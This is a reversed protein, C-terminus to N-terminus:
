QCMTVLYTFPQVVIGHHKQLSVLIHTSTQAKENPLSVLIGYTTHHKNIQKHHMELEFKIKCSDKIQRDQVISWVKSVGGM